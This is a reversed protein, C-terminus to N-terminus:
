LVINEKNRERQRKSVGRGRVGRGAVGGGGGVVCVCERARTSTTTQTSPTRYTKDGPRGVSIPKCNSLAQQGKPLYPRLPLTTREVKGESEKMKRKRGYGEREDGRSDRRDRERPLSM